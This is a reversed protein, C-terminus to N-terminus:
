SLFTSFSFRCLMIKISSRRTWDLGPFLVPHSRIQNWLISKSGCVERKKLFSSEWVLGVPKKNWLTQETFFCGYRICWDILTSKNELVRLWNISASPPGVLVGAAGDVGNLEVWPKKKTCCCSIYLFISDHKHFQSSATGTKRFFAVKSGAVHMAVVIM